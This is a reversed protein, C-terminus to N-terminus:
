GNKISMWEGCDAFGIRSYFEKNKNEERCLFIDKGKGQLFSCLETVTKTGFGRKRYNERTKVSGLLAENETMAVCVACSVLTKGDFCTHIEAGSHRKKHSLDTFWDEFSAEEEKFLLDFIAKYDPESFTIKREELRKELRMIKGAERKGFNFRGAFSNNLFISSYGIASLFSVIEDFDSKETLALTVDGSLSSIVSVTEGAENTQLWLMFFPQETGYVNYYARQRLSFVSDSIAPFPTDKKFLSIM